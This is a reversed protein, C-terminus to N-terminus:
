GRNAAMFHSLKKGVPPNVTIWMPTHDTLVEGIMDRENLMKRLYELSEYGLCVKAKKGTKQQILSFICFEAERRLCESLHGYTMQALDSVRLGSDRLCMIMAKNRWSSTM